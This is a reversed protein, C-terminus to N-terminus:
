TEWKNFQISNLQVSISKNEYEQFANQKIKWDM